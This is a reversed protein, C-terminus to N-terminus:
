ELRSRLECRLPCTRQQLFWESLCARHFVHGDHGVCPAVSLEEGSEFEMLCITCTKGVDAATATRHTEPTISRAAAAAAAAAASGPPANTLHFNGTFPSLTFNAGDPLTFGLLSSGDFELATGPGLEGEFIIDSLLHIPTPAPPATRPAAGPIPALVLPTTPHDSM